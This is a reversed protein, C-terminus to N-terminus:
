KGVVKWRFDAKATKPDYTVSAEIGDLIILNISVGYNIRSGAEFHGVLVREGNVDDIVVHMHPKGNVVSGLMSGVEM